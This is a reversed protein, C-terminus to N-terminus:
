SWLAQALHDGGRFWTDWPSLWMGIRQGVTRPYGLKYGIFFAAAVLFLGCIAMGPLARAVSFLILFLCALVLAPPLDNQLFFFFLILGVAVLPPVVYELRPLPFVRAAPGLRVRREPVERLLEWRDAFYGALFLAILIKILEVPQFGL